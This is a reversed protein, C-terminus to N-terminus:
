EYLAEIPFGNHLYSHLRKLQALNWGQILRAEVRHPEAPDTLHETLRAVTEGGHLVWNKTAPVKNPNITKLVKPAKTVVKEERPLLLYETERVVVLEPEPESEDDSFTERLGHILNHLRDIDQKLKLVEQVKTNAYNGLILLAVILGGTFLKTFSM